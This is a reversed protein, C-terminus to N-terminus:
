AWPLMRPILGAKAAPRELISGMHSESRLFSARVEDSSYGRLATPEKLDCGVCCQKLLSNEVIVVLSPEKQVREYNHRVMEVRQNCGSRLNGEFLGHLEDLSAEGETQLAFQIHPHSAEVFGLHHACLFECAARSIDVLIGNPSSQSQPWLIEFETRRGTIPQIRHRAMQPVSRQPGHRFAWSLQASNM